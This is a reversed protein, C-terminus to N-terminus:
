SILKGLSTPSVGWENDIYKYKLSSNNLITNYVINYVINGACLKYTM